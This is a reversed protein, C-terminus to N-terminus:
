QQLTRIIRRGIFLSIVLSTMVAMASRFSIYNFLGAGPVDFKELYHFLYYLM